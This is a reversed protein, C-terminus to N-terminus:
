KRFKFYLGVGIAVAVLIALILFCWKMKRTKKVYETAQHVEKVGQVTYEHAGEIAGEISDIQEQQQIVMQSIEQSLESLELMTKEIQKIDAKRQQVNNLIATANDRRNSSKIAQAYVNAAEDNDLADDIEERTANPNAIEYHRRLRSKYLESYDRGIERYRDLRATFAKALSQQKSARMAMQSSSISPNRAYLQKMEELRELGRKIKSIAKTTIHIQEDRRKSFEARSSDTSAGLVAQYGNKVKEIEDDLRRLLQSIYDILSYFETDIDAESASNLQNPHNSPAQPPGGGGRPANYSPRRGPFKDYESADMESYPPYGGGRQQGRYHPRVAANMPVAVWNNSRSRPMNAPPREGYNRRGSMTNMEIDG